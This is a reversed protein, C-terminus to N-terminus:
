IGVSVGVQVVTMSKHRGFSATEVTEIERAVRLDACRSHYDMQLRIYEARTDGFPLRFSPQSRILLLYSLHLLREPGKSAACPAAHSLLVNGM